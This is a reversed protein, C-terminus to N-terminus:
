THKRTFSGVVLYMTCSHCVGHLLALRSPPLSLLLSISPLSSLVVSRWRGPPNVCGQAAESYDRERWVLVVSLHFLNQLGHCM